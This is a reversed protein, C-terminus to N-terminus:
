SNAADFLHISGDDVNNRNKEDGCYALVWSNPHWAISNQPYKCPISNISEGLLM